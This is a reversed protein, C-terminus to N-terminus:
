IQMEKHDQQEVSYTLRFFIHTTEMCCLQVRNRDAARVAKTIKARTLVFTGLSHIPVM